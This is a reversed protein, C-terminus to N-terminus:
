NGEGVLVQEQKGELDVVVREQPFERYTTTVAPEERLCGLEAFLTDIKSDVLKLRANTETQSLQLQCLVGQKLVQIECKMNELAHQLNGVM